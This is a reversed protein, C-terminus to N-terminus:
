MNILTSSSSRASSMCGLSRRWWTSPGGDGDTGFVGCSPPHLPRRLSPQRHPALLPQSQQRRTLRKGYAGKCHAACGVRWSSRERLQNTSALRSPRRSEVFSAIVAADTRGPATPPPYLPGLGSMAAPATVACVSRATARVFTDDRPLLPLPIRILPSRGLSEIVKLRVEHEFSASSLFM